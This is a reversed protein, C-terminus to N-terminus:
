TRIMITGDKILRIFIPVLGPDFQKGAEEELVSLAKELPMASKYTRKSIMADFSDVICLMRAMLPIQEGKIGRPYGKGDYREHHGIVAPIVYDLSPLHRIIGISLEVHTKMVEYEETSLKGPKNLINGDIGIKGIDHLLGAEHIVVLGEENLGYARALETAYYAVNESHSFTYHDKADIAATLAYITSAYDSYGGVPRAATSSIDMQTGETYIVVRNKGARKAYYVATEAQSLLERFDRSSCTGEAIGCSVTLTKLIYDGVDRNMLRIQESIVEALERAQETTYKHLLVVFEKGSYRSLFCGTPITRQLIDAIGRLADDAAETGYLKNYLRFDDVSIMILCGYSDTMNCINQMVEYLRKRNSLGTLYDKRSEQYAAEYLKSNDIAISAVSTLSTLFNLDERRYKEKTTKTEIAVVGMLYEKRHIAVVCEVQSRNLRQREEPPFHRFAPTTKYDKILLRGETQRLARVVMDDKPMSDRLEPNKRSCQVLRYSDGDLLYISVGGASTAEQITKQMLEMIQRVTMLQSVQESFADMSKGYKYESKVFLADWFIKLLVYFLWTVILVGLSTVMILHSDSLNFLEKLQNDIRPIFHYSAILTIACALVYCNTRSMLLEVQFMRNRYLAYYLCLAMPVSALVDVPFGHFFPLLLLINGLLLFGVGLWIPWLGQWFFLEKKRNEWLMQISPIIAGIAALFLLVVAWTMEYALEEEGNIRELAPPALLLETVCNFLWVALIIGLWFFIHYWKNDGVLVRIFFFLGVPFIMIGLLSIHYWFSMSPWYDLRLLLSGGTWLIMCCLLMIFAKVARDKKVPVFSILLIVFCLLAAISIVAFSYM